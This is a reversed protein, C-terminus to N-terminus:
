VESNSTIDTGECLWVNRLIVAEAQLQTTRVIDKTRSM